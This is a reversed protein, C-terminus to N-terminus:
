FYYSTLVGAFWIHPLSDKFDKSVDSIDSVDECSDNIYEGSVCFGFWFPYYYSFVPGFSFFPLVRYKM